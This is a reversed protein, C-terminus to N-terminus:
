SIEHIGKNSSQTKIVHPDYGRKSIQKELIEAIEDQNNINCVAFVSSGGGSINFGYAGADLIKEKIEWYGRIANSRVPESIYDCLVAKGFSEIDREMISHLVMLCHSSQERIDSLSLNGTIFGRTTREKKRMINIVLPIKPIDIRVVDLPNYSKIYIFGGLLAAAVNDAHPSGGSAIEGKRAIDIMENNSLGLDMLKNVGYVCAAASAGSSGLGSGVPMKKEITIHVGNGIGLEELLHILALTATNDHPTTPLDMISGEIDVKISNSNILRIKLEDYPKELSFGFIDFGPGVNAITAPARLHIERM